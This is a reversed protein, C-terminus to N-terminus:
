FSSAIIFCTKDIIIMFCRNECIAHMCGPDILLSFSLLYIVSVIAMWVPCAAAVPPAIACFDPATEVMPEVM